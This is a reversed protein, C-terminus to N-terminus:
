NMTHHSTLLGAVKLLQKLFPKSNAIITGVSQGTCLYGMNLGLGCLLPILVVPNLFHLNPGVFIFSTAFSASLKVLLTEGDVSCHGNRNM